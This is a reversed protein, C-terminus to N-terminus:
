ATRMRLVIGAGLELEVQWHTDVAQKQIPPQSTSSSVDSLNIFSSPPSSSQLIKRWKYYSSLSIGQQHCFTKITLDSEESQDIFIQWEELSKQSGKAQKIIKKELSPKHNQM